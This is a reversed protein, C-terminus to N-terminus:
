SGQKDNTTRNNVKAKAIPKHVKLTKDRGGEASVAGSRIARDIIRKVAGIGVGFPGATGGFANALSSKSYTRGEAGESEIMAVLQGIQVEEYTKQELAPNIPQLCGDDCRRMFM